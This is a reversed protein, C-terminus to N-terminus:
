SVHSFNAGANCRAGGAHHMEAGGTRSNVAPSNGAVKAAFEKKTDFIGILFAGGRFRGLHNQVRHLPQVEVVVVLASHNILHLTEVAVLFHRIRKELLAKGIPVVARLFLKVRHTFGLLEAAFLGAIVAAPSGFAGCLETKHLRFAHFRNEAEAIRIVAVYGPFVSNITRDGHRVSLEIVEDDHTGVADRGVVERDHHVINIHLHRVHDAASVMDVVRGALDVQVASETNFGRDEAVQRQDVARVALLQRLAMTRDSHRLVLLGAIQRFRDKVVEGTEAPAM